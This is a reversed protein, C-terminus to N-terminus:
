PRTAPLHRRTTPGNPSNPVPVDDSQVPMPIFTFILSIVAFVIAAVAYGRLRYALRTSRVILAAIVAGGCAGLAVWFAPAQDGNFCGAIAMAGAIFTGLLLLKALRYLFNHGSKRQRVGLTTPDVVLPDVPPPPAPPEILDAPRLHGAAAVQMEGAVIDAPHPTTDSPAASSVERATVRKRRGFWASPNPGANPAGDPAPPTPPPDDPYM